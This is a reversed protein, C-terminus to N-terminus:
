GVVDVPVGAGLRRALWTTARTSMRICGASAATGAAGSLGTVGHLATQGPGGHFEQFVESRASLALAYPGGPAGPALAVAEEVFFRGRPTPTAPRGVVARFRRVARGHHFVTVVRTSLRVRAYWPTSSRRTAAARIWATHGNPRGPLRVHFWGGHRGSREGIVPLVTRVRTLPRRGRVTAVRRADRSPGTRAVQDALLIVLPRREPVDAAAATGAGTVSVLAALLAGTATRM